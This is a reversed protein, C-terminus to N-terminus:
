RDIDVNETRVDLTCLPDRRLDVVRLGLELDLGFGQLPELAGDTLEGIDGSTILKWSALVDLVRVSITKQDWLM